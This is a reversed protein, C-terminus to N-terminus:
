LPDKSGTNVSSLVARSGDILFINCCQFALRSAQNIFDFGQLDGVIVGVGKGYGPRSFLPWQRFKNSCM